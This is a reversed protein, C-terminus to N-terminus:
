KSFFMPISQKSLKSLELNELFLVSRKKCMDHFYKKVNLFCTNWLFARELKGSFFDLELSVSTKLPASHLTKMRWCLSVLTDIRCNKKQIENQFCLDLASLDFGRRQKSLHSSNKCFRDSLVKIDWITKKLEPGIKKICNQPFIEFIPSKM